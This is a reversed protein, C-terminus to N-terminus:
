RCAVATGPRLDDSYDIRYARNDLAQADGTSCNLLLESYAASLEIHQLREGFARVLRYVIERVVGERM